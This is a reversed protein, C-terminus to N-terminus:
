RSQQVVHTLEHALLKKGQASEPNYKGTNFYINKGNTFAQAGLEECMEVAQANTHIRVKSFDVGFAQEMEVRTHESLPSGRGSAQKLKKSLRPKSAAKGIKEKAQMSEEEEMQQVPEDEEMQQVSEEEEMQQVPEEEEMQQVPEEEEMQQVPEEEEMQQVPEEEEMQQVSEEEEMQQVPEEEAKEQILKDKEMRSEATGLKEDEQPTALTIRQISPSSQSEIASPARSHTVVQNAVADAEKEYKDGPQGIRLKTQIASALGAAGHSEFFPQKNEKSKSFFPKERGTEKHRPNRLRRSRPTSKM